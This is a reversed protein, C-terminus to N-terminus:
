YEIKLTKVYSQTADSLHQGEDIAAKETQHISAGCFIGNEDRYLNIYGKNIEECDYCIIRAPHGDRTCVKAGAKAKNVDFPILKKEM